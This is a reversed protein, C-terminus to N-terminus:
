EKLYVSRLQQYDVKGSSFRPLQLVRFISVKSPHLTTQDRVYDWIGRQDIHDTVIVIKEDIGLIASEGTLSSLGQELEDLNVRKGSVKVDRSARGTLFLFGDEDLYGLDGTRLVGGFQDPLSLDEASSAYGLCVNPGSYVVEGFADGQNAKAIKISGGPIPKGASGLKSIAWSPPVYAIRPTAETQGYMTFFDFEHEAAKELFFSTKEISLKGGAQTMCRMQSMVGEPLGSRMLMEYQFPVGSFDTARYELFDRWFESTLTSHESLVLPVGCWIAVHLLSLGYTYHLPLSTILVRDREVELYEGIATASALINAYSVRVCKPSGTSGSTPMLSALESYISYDPEVPNKYIPIGYAEKQEWSSLILREDSVISSPRFEEVLHLFAEDSIEPDIVLVPTRSRLASVYTLAFTFRDKVALLLLGSPMMRSLSDARRYTEHFSLSVGSSPNILFPANLKATGGGFLVDLFKSTM